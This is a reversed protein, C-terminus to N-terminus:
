RLLRWLAQDWFTADCFVNVNRNNKLRLKRPLQQFIKADPCRKRFRRLDGNLVFASCIEAPVLRELRRMRRVRNMAQMYRRATRRVLKAQAASLEIVKQQAWPINARGVIGWYRGVKCGPKTQDSKSAYGSVYRMIGFQSNILDASTGALLHKQNGSAVVEFWNWALWVRFKGLCEKNNGLNWFIPHFHAAGRSQFELKWHFGAAPFARLFRQSFIKLHKKFTDQDLPFEAPYTLTGFIPRGCKSQDVKALSLRLRQRSKESFESIESRKPCPQDRSGPEHSDFRVLSGGVYFTVTPSPRIHSKSLGPPAAAAEAAAPARLLYPRSTRANM